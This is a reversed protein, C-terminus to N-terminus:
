ATPVYAGTIKVHTEPLKVEISCETFYEDIIGDVDPAQINTNLKTDRGDLYSYRINEPDIVYGYGGYVTGSLLPDYIVKLVGYSTILEKVRIGYTAAPDCSTMLDNEAWTNIATMLNPGAILLKETGGHAFAPQAVDSDFNRYTLPNTSSDFAVTQTLFYNLGGLTRRVYTGTTDEKRQGVYLALGIDRKHEIMAKRRQYARDQGGYLKSAAETGSLKIPTRFIQTYNYCAAEQTSKAERSSSNETMANGVILVVADNAISAGATTGYGRTVTLTHTNATIDTVLLNEGTAPLHAIDGIRFITDDDVVIATDDADYGAGANIATENGILKDELWEIKPSYAIRSGKKALKLFTVFPAENPDLLAIQSAMDVVRRASQITATTRVGTINTM